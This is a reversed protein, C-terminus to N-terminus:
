YVRHWKLHTPLLDILLWTISPHSTCEYGILPLQSKIKKFNLTLHYDYIIWDTDWCYAADALSSRAFHWYLCLRIINPLLKSTGPLQGHTGLYRINSVMELFTWPNFYPLNGFLLAYFSDTRFLIHCEIYAFHLQHLCKVFLVSFFIQFM